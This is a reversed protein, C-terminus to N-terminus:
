GISNTPVQTYYYAEVAHATFYKSAFLHMIGTRQGM